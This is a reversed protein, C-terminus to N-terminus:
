NAFTPKLYLEIKRSFSAGYLSFLLLAIKNPSVWPNCRHWTKSDVVFPKRAVALFTQFKQIKRQLAGTLGIPGTRQAQTALLVVVKQGLKLERPRVTQAARETKLRFFLLLLLLLLLFGLM